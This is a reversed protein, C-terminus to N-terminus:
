RVIMTMLCVVSLMKKSRHVKKIRHSAYCKLLADRTKRKKIRHSAYCEHLAARTKRKKLATRLMANMYRTALKGRKKRKLATRLMANM